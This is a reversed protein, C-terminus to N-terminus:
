GEVKLTEFVARVGAVLANVRITLPFDSPAELTYSLASKEHVLYFAEPWDQRKMLDPNACIIGNKAPRGEISPSGDIPCVEQVQRIITASISPLLSPNLEYLYFGNAEWDEHLLLTLDFRPQRKLWDVHARVLAARRSRYDRNLDVGDENERCNRVYGQPNLCPILWVGLDSPWQKDQFLRLVALPGAPEDGHIGASIYIRKKPISVHRHFAFLPRGGPLGLSDREWGTGSALGEIESLIQYIDAICEGQYRGQNRGLREM